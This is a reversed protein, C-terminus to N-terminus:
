EDWYDRINCFNGKGREYYLYEWNVASSNSYNTGNEIHQEGYIKNWSNHFYKSFHEQSDWWTQKSIVKWVSYMM